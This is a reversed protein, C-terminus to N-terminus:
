ETEKIFQSWSIFSVINDLDIYNKMANQLLEYLAKRFNVREKESLLEVIDQKVAKEYGKKQKKSLMKVIDDKDTLMNIAEISSNLTTPVDYIILERAGEKVSNKHVSVTMKRTKGPMSAHVTRAEMDKKFDEQKAGKLHDPLIIKIQILDFQEFDTFHKEATPYKNEEFVKFMGGLVIDIFNNFYGLALSTSPLFGLHVEKHAEEIKLAILQVQEALSDRDFIISKDKTKKYGQYDGKYGYLRIFNENPDDLKRSDLDTFFKKFFRKDSDQYLIFTKKAGIKGLFLGFEFVVNHRAATGKLKKGKEDKRTSVTIDDDSVFVFLAFDYIDTFGDLWQVNSMGNEDDQDTKGFVGENWIDVEFKEDGLLAKVEVAVPLSETSSGIFVSPKGKIKKDFDKVHKGDELIQPPSDPRFAKKLSM